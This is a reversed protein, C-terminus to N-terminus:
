EIKSIEKITLGTINTIDNLPYGMSLMKKAIMVTGKKLGKKLGKKMGIEIGMAREYQRSVKMEECELISTKYAEMEEAKLNKLTTVKFLEEFVSGSIKEPQNSLKGLNRFCYLWEDLTTELSEITKKFKPLEIVIINMNDMAVLNTECRVIKLHSLYYDDGEFKVFDLISICYVPQLKFDWEGKKAQRRIPFSMYYLLRDLFNRQSAIQLEIIFEEGKNSKCFIDFIARRQKKEEPLQETLLYEIDEIKDEKQIIVNLFDILIAKNEGFVRKFTFDTRLEMYRSKEWKEIRGKKM